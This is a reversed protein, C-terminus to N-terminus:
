ATGRELRAHWAGLWEHEELGDEVWDWKQGVEPFDAFGLDVRRLAELVALGFRRIPHERRFHAKTRREAAVCRGGEESKFHRRRARVGDELRKKRETNSHGCPPVGNM